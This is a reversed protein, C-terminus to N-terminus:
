IMLDQKSASINCNLSGTLERIAESAVGYFIYDYPMEVHTMKYM